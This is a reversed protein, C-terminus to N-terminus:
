GGADRRRRLTVAAWGVYAVAMALWVVGQATRGDTLASMGLYLAAIALVVALFVVGPNSVRRPEARTGVVRQWSNM